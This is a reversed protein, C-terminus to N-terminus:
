QHKLTALILPTYNRCDHQKSITSTLRPTNPQIPFHKYVLSVWLYFHISNFAVTSTQVTAKLRLPQTQGTDM